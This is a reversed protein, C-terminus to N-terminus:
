KNRIKCINVHIMVQILVAIHLTLAFHFLWPNMWSPAPMQILLLAVWISGFLLNLGTLRLWTMERKIRASNIERIGFRAIFPAFLVITANASIFFLIRLAGTFNAAQPPDVLASLGSPRGAELYLAFGLAACLTAVHLAYVTQLKL